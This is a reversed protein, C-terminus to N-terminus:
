PSPNWVGSEPETQDLKETEERGVEVTPCSQPLPGSVSLAILLKHKM